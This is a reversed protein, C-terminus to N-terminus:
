RLSPHGAPDRLSGQPGLTGGHNDLHDRIAAAYLEPDDARNLRARVFELMRNTREANRYCFARPAMFERPAALTEEIAGTSHHQPLWRRRRAQTIVQDAHRDVWDEIGVGKGQVSRAFKRWSTM